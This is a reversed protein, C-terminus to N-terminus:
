INTNDNKNDQEDLFKQCEPCANDDHDLKENDHCYGCILNPKPEIRDPYLWHYNQISELRAKPFNM